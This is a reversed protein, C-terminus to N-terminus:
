LAGQESLPSMSFFEHATAALFRREQSRPIDLALLGLLLGLRVMSACLLCGVLLQYPLIQMSGLLSLFGLLIGTPGPLSSVSGSAGSGLETPSGLVELLVWVLSNNKAFKQPGARLLGAPSLISASIVVLTM